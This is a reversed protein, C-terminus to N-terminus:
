RRPAASKRGFKVETSRCVAARCFRKLQEVAVNHDFDSEAACCDSLVILPYGHMHADHATFLVCLNTAIGALILRRVKLDELLPVLSTAFFGSHRPKLIFYDQRGPKLRRSVNRGRATRQTCHAYVERFNSRWHGFNDNVYIVPLGHRHARSKFEALRPALREAWPLLKDAGEFSLDNIADIILVADGPRAHVTRPPKTANKAM